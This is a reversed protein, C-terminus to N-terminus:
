ASSHGIVSISRVLELLQILLIFSRLWRRIVDMRQITVGLYKDCSCLVATLHFPYADRRVVTPVGSVALYPQLPSRYPLQSRSIGQKALAHFFRLYTVCLVVWSILGATTVLAVLWNFAQFSGRYISLYATAGWIVSFTVALYPIQYRNLKLFVQPAHGDLALGHLTRSALFTCSNGSSFASTFIQVLFEASGTHLSSIHSVVANVLSPVVQSHPNNDHAQKPSLQCSVKNGARELAIVFPSQAATVITQTLRPDDAPILLSIVFISLVYFIIVRFFTRKLAKPISQRPNRTEAGAIAVM